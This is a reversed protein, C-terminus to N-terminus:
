AQSRCLPWVTNEPGRAMGPVLSVGGSVHGRARGPYQCLAFLDCPLHGQAPFATGESFIGTGSARCRAPRGFRRSGHCQVWACPRGPRRVPALPPKRGFPVHRGLSAAARIFKGFHGQTGTGRDDARPAHTGAGCAPLFDAAVRARARGRESASTRGPARAYQDQRDWGGGRGATTAREM